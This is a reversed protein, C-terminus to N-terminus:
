RQRGHGHERYQWAVGAWVLRDATRPPRREAVFLGFRDAVHVAGIRPIDGAPTFPAGAHPTPAAHENALISAHEVVLREIGLDTAAEGPGVGLGAAGVFVILGDTGLEDK